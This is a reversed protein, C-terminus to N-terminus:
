ENNDITFISTDLILKIWSEHHLILVKKCSVIESLIKIEPFPKPSKTSVNFMFNSSDQIHIRILGKTTGWKSISYPVYIIRNTFKEVMSCDQPINKIYIYQTENITKVFFSNSTGKKSPLHQSLSINFSTLAPRASRVKAQTPLYNPGALGVYLSGVREMLM